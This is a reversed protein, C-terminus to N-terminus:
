NKLNKVLVKVSKNNEQSPKTSVQTLYENPEITKENTLTKQREATEESNEQNVLMKIEPQEQNILKVKDKSNTSYSLVSYSTIALGTGVSILGAVPGVTILLFYGILSYLVNIGILM